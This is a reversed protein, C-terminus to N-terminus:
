SKDTKCQALYDMVIDMIHVGSGLYKIWSEVETSKPNWSTKKVRSEPNGSRSEPNLLTPNRIKYAFAEQKDSYPNGLM